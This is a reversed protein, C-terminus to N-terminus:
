VHLDIHLAEKVSLLFASNPGLLSIINKIDDSKSSKTTQNNDGDKSIILTRYEERITRKKARHKVFLRIGMIIGIIIFVSTLGGLLCGIIKFYYHYVM